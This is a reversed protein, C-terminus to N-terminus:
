RGSALARTAAEVRRQLTDREKRREELTKEAEQVATTLPVSPLPQPLTNLLTEEMADELKRLSALVDAHQSHAHKWSYETELSDALNDFFSTGKKELELLCKEIRDATDM